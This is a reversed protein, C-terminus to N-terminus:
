LNLKKFFLTKVSTKKKEVNYINRYIDLILSLPMKQSKCACIGKKNTIKALQEVLTWMMFKSKHGLKSTIM